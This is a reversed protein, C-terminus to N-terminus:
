RCLEHSSLARAEDPLKSFEEQSMKSQKSIQAQLKLEREVSYANGGPIDFQVGPCDRELQLCLRILRGLEELTFRNREAYEALKEILLKKDGDM